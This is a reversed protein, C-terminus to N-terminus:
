PIGLHAKYAAIQAERGLEDTIKNVDIVASDMAEQASIEGALAKTLWLEIAEQYRSAGPIRLDIVSNPHNTTGVISKVYEVADAEIWGAAVWPAINTAHSTRFPQCGSDPSAVYNASVTPSTMYKILEWAADKSKTTTPIMWAWGNFAQPPSLKVETTTVWQKTQWDFYEKSGPALSFGIKGKVVSDKGISSPGIDGWDLAMLTTGNTMESIVDGRIADKGPRICCNVMEIYKELGRVYGENNILPNMDLDFLFIGAAPAKDTPVVGYASFWSYSYWFAQNGRTVSTVFPYHKDPAGDGAWDKGKFFKGVELLEDITTPPNPLDKGMETKYAEQWKPDNFVDKRYFFSTNDNDTIISYTHGGWSDKRKLGDPMDDWALEPDNADATIYDDLSMIFGSNVFDAMWTNPILLLDFDSGGVAAVQQIKSYLDAFPIETVEIKFGYKAEMAAQEKYVPGIIFPGTNTIIKLTVGEYPLKEAPAETAVAAEPVATPKPACSVLVLSIIALVVFMTTVKKM